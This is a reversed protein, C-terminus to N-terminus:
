PMFWRSGPIPLITPIPPDPIPIREKPQPLNLEKSDLKSDCRDAEPVEEEEEEEYYYFHNTTLPRQAHGFAPDKQSEIHYHPLQGHTEHTLQFPIDNPFIKFFLIIHVVALGLAQLHNDCRFNYPPDLRICKQGDPDIWNVPNNHVFFYLNRGDEYGIPDAQLFRGIIPNYIRARYYYNSSEPDYQRGTFFYGNNVGSTPLPAGDSDFINFKGYVSYEYREALVSSIETLETTSGLADRHYYYINADHEMTLLKDIDNAYTYRTSLSDAAYEEIVQYGKDYVFHTTVSDVVKAIRRGLADYVYEATNEANSMGIQRNLIDYTYTNIGDALTNGREDYLFPATDVAEYRNMPNTLKLGDTPAYLQSVGDNQVELRNGLNDLEYWQLKAYNTISIPMTADAGYWVQILQYLNDYAYVDAPHDAEHWRQMYTRNGADDYGYRYDSILTDTVIASVRITRYLADYETTNVVGNAYTLTFNSDIDHYAYDAIATGDGEQVADLRGISDLVQVRQVGSPYTTTYVGSVYDYGYGVPWSLGDLAQTTGTVDGVNNYVFTLLSDHGNASEAASILRNMADYDFTQDPVGPDETSFDKSLLRGAGDYVHTITENDQTTRVLVNGRGDYTFGVVEGDAYIEQAVENRPTYTYRTLNGNADVIQALNLANDYSYHTTANLGGDDEIVQTPLGFANYVTRTTVGEPDTVTEQNNLRDYNYSTCLNLGSVDQCTQELRNLDDYSFGTIVGREDIIQALNGATDYVYETELNLGGDDQRILRLRNLNDYEYATVVGRPDTEYVLNDNVDYHYESRLNLGGCDRVQATRRNHSDYEYCTVTQDPHTLRTINDNLDYTYVTRLNLGGEDVTETILRGYGDYEYHTVYGDADMLRELRGDLAYTYTMVRGAPDVSNVLQDAEDYLHITTSGRGDQQVALQRNIDYTYQTSVALPGDTTRESELQDHANYTFDSVVNRGTSGDPTYDVVQRILNGRGDYVYQTVIGLADTETLLRNMPDYTLITTERGDPGIRRGSNGAGDFDRYLTVLNAGGEDEIVQTLLGPVPTVGPLFRANAGGYAEDSTGQTYVYRTVMNRADRETELLGWENYTYHVMPTVINGTGDDVQPYEIRILNGAEGVGEEYDYVYTTTHGAADTDTKIQNFREEYTYGMELAAPGGNQCVEGEMRRESLRNGMEDYTYEVCDGDGYEVRTLNNRADREYTTTRGEGDTEDLWSGWKNTLGYREGRGYEVRNVLETSIPVPAIPNVPSGVETRENVLDYGTDSPTFTRVQQIVTTQGLTPDYVARPPETVRRIRGFSDYEHTTVAGNQDTYHTMLHRSDYTFQESAGDPMTVSVLDGRHDVTFQTVRDAPDTITNLKGNVYGFAWVWRPLAEGPAVIGMTAVTGDSNYTYVTQRGDPMVTVAHRGEQTFHIQTGDPNLRRYVSVEQYYTLNAYNTATRGYTRYTPLQRVGSVTIGAPGSPTPVDKIRQRTVLDIVSVNSSGTNTVYAYAGEPSLAIGWPYSGVGITAVVQRTVLDIVSVNSSGTNTVYAYVGDASLAIGRPYSGVGITAVVQRTVLDIV